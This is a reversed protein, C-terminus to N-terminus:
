SEITWLMVTGDQRGTAIMGLQTSKAISTVENELQITQIPEQTDLDWFRITKDVGASIISSDNPSFLVGLISHTHGVFQKKCEPIRVQHYCILGDTGATLFQSSSENFAISWIWDRNGAHQLCSKEKLNWEFISGDRGGTVLISNDPSFCATQIKMVEEGFMPLRQIRELDLLEIGCGWKTAMAWKGDESIALVDVDEFWGVREMTELDWVFLFKDEGATILHQDGIFCIKRVRGRHGNLHMKLLRSSTRWIYVYNDWSSTAFYKGGPSFALCSVVDQHFGELSERKVDFSPKHIDITDILSLGRSVIGSSLRIDGQSIAIISNAPKNENM